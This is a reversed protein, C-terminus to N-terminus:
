AKVVAMVEAPGAIEKIRATNAAIAGLDVRAASRLLASRLEPDRFTVASM